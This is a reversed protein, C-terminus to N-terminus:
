DFNLEYTGQAEIFYSRSYDSLEQGTTLDYFKVTFSGPYIQYKGESVTPQSTTGAALNNIYISVGSESPYKIDIVAPAEPLWEVKRFIGLTTSYTATFKGTIPLGSMNAGAASYDVSASGKWGNWSANSIWKEASSDSWNSFRTPFFRIGANETSNNFYATNRTAGLYLREEAAALPSSALFIVSQISFYLSFLFVIMGLSVFGKSNKKQWAGLSKSRLQANELLISKQRITHKQAKVIPKPEVNKTQTPQFVGPESKQPPPTITAPKTEQVLLIQQNPKAREVGLAQQRTAQCYGCFQAILGFPNKCVFCTLLFEDGTGEEITM